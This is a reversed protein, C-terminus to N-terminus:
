PNPLAPARGMVFRAPSPAGVLRGLRAVFGSPAVPLRVHLDVPFRRATRRADAPDASVLVTRVAAMVALQRLLGDSLAVHRRGFVVVDPIGTPTRRDRAAVRVVRWRHTARRAAALLELSVEPDGDFWWLEHRGGATM